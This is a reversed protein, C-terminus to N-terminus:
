VNMKHMKKYLFCLLETGKELLVTLTEMIIILRNIINTFDNNNIRLVIGFRKMYQTPLTCRYQVNFGITLM